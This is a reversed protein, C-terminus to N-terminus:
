SLNAIDFQELVSLDVIVDYEINDLQICMEKLAKSTKVLTQFEAETIKPNKAQELVALMSAYFSSRVIQNLSYLM